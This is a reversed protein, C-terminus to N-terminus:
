SSNNALEYVSDVSLNLTSTEMALIDSKNIGNDNKGKIVVETDMESTILSVDVPPIINRKLNPQFPEPTSSIFATGSIPTLISSNQTIKRRHPAYKNIWDRFTSDAIKYEKAIEAPRTGNKIHLSVLHKKFDEDYRSHKKHCVRLYSENITDFVEDEDYDVLNYDYESDPDTIHKRKKADKNVDIKPLIFQKSSCIDEIERNIQSSFDNLISESPNENVLYTSNISQIDNISQAKFPRRKPTSGSKKPRKIKFILPQAEALSSKDIEADTPNFTSFFEVIDNKTKM